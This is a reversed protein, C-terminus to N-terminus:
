MQRYRMWRKFVVRQTMMVSVPGNVHIKFTFRGKAPACLCPTSLPSGAETQTNGTKAARSPGATGRPSPSNQYWLSSWHFVTIMVHPLPELFHKHSKGKNALEEVKQICVDLEKQLKQFEQSLSGKKIKEVQVPGPDRNPPSHGFQPVSILSNKPLTQVPLKAGLPRSKSKPTSAMLNTEIPTDAEEQFVLSLCLEIVSWNFCHANRLYSM